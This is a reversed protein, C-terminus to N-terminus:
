SAAKGESEVQIDLTPRLSLSLASSLRLPTLTLALLFLM